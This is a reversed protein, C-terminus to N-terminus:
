TELLYNYEMPLIAYEGWGLNELCLGIGSKVISGYMLIFRGVSSDNIDHERSDKNTAKLCIDPCDSNRKYDFFTVRINNDTKGKNRSSTVRGFYLRKKDDKARVTKIDILLDSLLVASTYGPLFFYRYFNDDFKRCIGRITTIRSPLSYKEGNHRGIAVEVDDGQIDEVVNGDYEVPEDIVPLEPKEQMFSSVVVLDQNEIAQKAEEENIYRKGLTQKVRLPCLPHYKRSHAFFAQRGKQDINKDEPSKFLPVSCRPCFIHGKMEPRYELPTVQSSSRKLEDINSSDYQWDPCHLAFKIRNNECM